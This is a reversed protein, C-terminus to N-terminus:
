LSHLVTVFLVFYIKHLNDEGGTEYRYKAAEFRRGVAPSINNVATEAVVQRRVLVCYRDAWKGPHRM